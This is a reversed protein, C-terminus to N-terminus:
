QKIANPMWDHENFSGLNGQKFMGRFYQQDNSSMISKQEQKHHQKPTIGRGEVQDLLNTEPSGNFSEPHARAWKILGRRELAHFQADVAQGCPEWHDMLLGVMRRTIVYAHACMPMARLGKGYCWGLFLLDIRNTPMNDLERLLAAGASAAALGDVLQVDDEFVLLLDKSHQQRLNKYTSGSSNGDRFSTPVSLKCRPGANLVSGARGSGSVLVEEESMAGLEAERLRFFWDQWIQFHAMGLGRETAKHSYAGQSMFYLPCQGSLVSPWEEYALPLKDLLERVSTQRQSILSLRKKVAKELTKEDEKSTGQTKGERESSSLADYKAVLPDTVIVATTVTRDYLVTQGCDAKDPPFKTKAPGLVRKPRFLDPYQKMKEKVRASYVEKERRDSSSGVQQSTSGGGTGGSQSQQGGLNPRSIKRPQAYSLTLQSLVLLVLICISLNPLQM